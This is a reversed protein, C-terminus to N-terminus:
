SPFQLDGSRRSVDPPMSPTDNECTKSKSNRPSIDGLMGLREDLTARYQKDLLDHVLPTAIELPIEEQPGSPQPAAMMQEVTEIETLPDRILDALANELMARGEAAGGASYVMLTLFHGKMELHGLM